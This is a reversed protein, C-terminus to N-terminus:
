KIEFSPSMFSSGRPTILVITYNGPTLKCDIKIISSQGQVIPTNVVATAVNNGSNDKIIAENITTDEKISQVDLFVANSTSNTYASKIALKEMPYHSPFYSSPQGLEANAWFSFGVLAITVLAYFLITKFQRIDM